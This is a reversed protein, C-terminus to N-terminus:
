QPITHNKFSLPAISLVKDRNFPIGYIFNNEALVGFSWQNFGNLFEEEMPIYTSIKLVPDFRLIESAQYPIGYLYGDPGEVLDSWKRANFEADVKILQSTQDEINIQLISDSIFPTAYINGDKALAGNIWGSPKEYEDGIFSTTDSGVTIKLVKNANLPIGYINGDGGLFGGWYKGKVDGLDAGIEMLPNDVDTPNFKVVRRNDFPLFYIQGDPAMVASSFKRIGLSLLSHGDAVLSTTETKPDIKLISRSLFPACYIFGDQGVVGGLWKGTDSSLYSGINVSTDTVPDFRLVREFDYPIGYVFGDPGLVGSRWKQVTEYTTGVLNTSPICDGGDFSCEKTNYEEEDCYSDGIWGINTITCNPNDKVVKENREVCDGIDFGCEPTNYLYGHCEGDGLLSPDPVICDPYKNNLKLCDGGDWGCELTNTSEGKLFQCIGDGVISLFINSEDVKEEFSCNVFKGQNLDNREECDGIDFGCQPTNYLYGHCEGDGVLSPDPVICDPYENLVTCDGGDWGCEPINTGEGKLFQCVGDGVISLFTSYNGFKEEFPCDM